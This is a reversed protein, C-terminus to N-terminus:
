CLHKCLLWMSSAHKKVKLSSTIFKVERGYIHLQLCQFICCFLAKCAGFVRM